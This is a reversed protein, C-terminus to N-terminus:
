RIEDYLEKINGTESELTLRARKAAPSDGRVSRKSHELELMLGKVYERYLVGDGAFRVGVRDYVFEDCCDEGGEYARMVCYIRRDEKVLRQEDIRFGNERLFRRLEAANQMPQLVLAAGALKERGKELIRSILLGGMGAIVIGQAEGATLPELGDGLRTDCGLRGAKELSPASIDCAIVRRARGTEILYAALKGHDCGIDAAVDCLPLM